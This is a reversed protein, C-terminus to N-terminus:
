ITTGPVSTTNTTGTSLDRGQLDGPLASSNDGYAYRDAGDTPPVGSGINGNTVAPSSFNDGASLQFTSLSGPAQAQGTIGGDNGWAQFRNGGAGQPLRTAKTPDNTGALGALAVDYNVRHLAAMRAYQYGLERTSDNHQIIGEFTITRERPQSTGIQREFGFGGINTPYMNVIVAADVIRDPLGTPDYQVILLSMSYASMFWGPINSGGGQADYASLRSMNTDPHQIDAQWTRFLNFVPAGDLEPLTISPTIQNRKTQTPVKLVQGDHGVPGGDQSELTYEVDIGTISKAHEEILGRLCEKLEPHPDWMSPTHIVYAVTPTFVLPTAGDLKNLRPGIGVQGSLAVNSMLANPHGGLVTPNSMFANDMFQSNAYRAM